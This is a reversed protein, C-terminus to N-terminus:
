MIAIKPGNLSVNLNRFGPEESVYVRGREREKQDHDIVNKRLAKVSQVAAPAAPNEVKSVTFVSAVIQM